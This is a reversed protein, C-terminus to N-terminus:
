SQDLNRFKISMVIAGALILLGIVWFFGLFVLMSSLPAGGIWCYYSIIGLLSNWFIAIIWIRTVQQVDVKEPEALTEAQPDDHSNVSEKRDLFLFLKVLGTVAVCGSLLLGAFVNLSIGQRQFTELTLVASSPNKPDVYCVHSQQKRFPALIHEVEEKSTWTGVGFWFRESSYGRGSFDYNYAVHPRFSPGPSGPSRSGLRRSGPISEVRISSITCPVEVWKVKASISDQRLQLVQEIVFYGILLFVIAVFVLLSIDLVRPRPDNSKKVIKNRSM